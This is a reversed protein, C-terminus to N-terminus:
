PAKSAVRSSLYQAIGEAIIKHAYASHHSTPDFYLSLPESPKTTRQHRALLDVTDIYPYGKEQLYRLVKELRNHTGHQLYYLLEDPEGFLVVIGQFADRRAVGQFDDFITTLLRVTSPDDMLTSAYDPAPGRDRALLARPITLAYPFSVQPVYRDLDYGEKFYDNSSFARAYDPQFVLRMFDSETRVPNEVLRLQGDALVYRPKTPIFYPTGNLLFTRTEQVLRAFGNVNVIRSVDRSLYGFLVVPTPYTRYLRKLKLLAQDPGYAGVGFNIVNARLSDSLLAEWTLTDPGTCETFSDGYASVLATKEAPGKPPHDWGLGADFQTQYARRVNEAGLLAPGDGPRRLGFRWLVRPDARVMGVVLSECGLWVGVVATTAFLLRKGRSLPRRAGAVRGVSTSANRATLTFAFLAGLAIAV